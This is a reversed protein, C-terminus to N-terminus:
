RSIKNLLLIYIIFYVGIGRNFFLFLVVLLIFIVKRGVNEIYWRLFIM